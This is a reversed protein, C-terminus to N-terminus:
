KSKKSSKWTKFQAVIEEHRELNCHLTWEKVVDRSCVATENMIPEDMYYGIVTKPGDSYVLREISFVRMTDFDIHPTAKAQDGEIQRLKAILRENHQKCEELQKKLSDVEVTNVAVKNLFPFM